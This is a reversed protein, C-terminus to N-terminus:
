RLTKKFILNRGALCHATGKGPEDTVTFTMVRRWRQGGHRGRSELRGKDGGGDKRGSCLDGKEVGRPQIRKGCTAFSQRPLPIKQKLRVKEWPPVFPVLERCSTESLFNDLIAENRSLNAFAYLGASLAITGWLKAM